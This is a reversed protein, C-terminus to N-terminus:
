FPNVNISITVTKTMNPTSAEKIMGTKTSRAAVAWFLANDAPPIPILYDPFGLM